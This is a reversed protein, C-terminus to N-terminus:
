QGIGAVNGHGFIGFCGAFFPREIGDRVTYQEALFKIAAQAVTLRTTGSQRGPELRPTSMPGGVRRSNDGTRYGCYVVSKSSELRKPCSNRNGSVFPRRLSMAKDLPAIASWM